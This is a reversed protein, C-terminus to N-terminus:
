FINHVKKKNHVTEKQKVETYKCLEGPEGVLNTLAPVLRNLKQNTRYVFRLMDDFASSENTYQVGAVTELRPTSSTPKLNSSTWMHSDADTDSTESDEAKEKPKFIIAMNAKQRILMEKVNNDINIIYNLTKNVQNEVFMIRHYVFPIWGTNSAIAEAFVYILDTKNKIDKLHTNKEDRSFAEVKNVLYGNLTDEQFKNLSSVGQDLKDLSNRITSSSSLALDTLLEVLQSGNKSLQSMEELLPKTLACKDQVIVNDEDAKYGSDGTRQWSSGVFNSFDPLSRNFLEETGNLLYAVLDERLRLQEAAINETDSLIREILSGTHRYLTVSQFVNENVTALAYLLQNSQNKFDEQDFPPPQDCNKPTRASSEAVTFNITKLKEELIDLVQGCPISDSSERFPFDKLARHETVFDHEGRAVQVSSINALVLSLGNRIEDTSRSLNYMTRATMDIAIKAKKTNYVNQESTEHISMSLNLVSNSTQLIEENTNVIDGLNNIVHSQGEQLIEINRREERASNRLQDVNSSVQEVDQKVETIRNQMDTHFHVLNQEIAQFVGSNMSQLDSMETKINGVAQELLLNQNENQTLQNNMSHLITDIAHLHTNVVRFSRVSYYQLNNVGREMTMLRTNLSSFKEDVINLIGDLLYKDVSDVHDNRRRSSSGRSGVNEPAQTTTSEHPLTSKKNQTSVQPSPTKQYRQTEPTATTIENDLDQYTVYEKIKNKARDEDSETTPLNKDCNVISFSCLVLFVIVVCTLLHKSRTGNASAM